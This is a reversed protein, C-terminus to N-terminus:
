ILGSILKQLGANESWAKLKRQLDPSIVTVQNAARLEAYIELLKKLNKIPEDPLEVLLAEVFVLLNKDHLVSIKFLNQSMLDTLRKLPAFEIREHTGIVKALLNNNMKGATVAKIWTEGAMNVVTKDSAIMATGLFLYAMEGPEDWIEHLTQLCAIVTRKDEERWFTPYRFCRIVVEALFPEPNNPTLLLIRRVDYPIELWTAKIAFHDYIIEQVPAPKKLIAGFLKKLGPSDSTTTRNITVQLVKRKATRKVTKKLEPDYYPDDYEEEVPEWPYQGTYNGFPKKYYAFKEFAAYKKKSKVALSSCM